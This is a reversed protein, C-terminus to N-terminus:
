IRASSFGYRFSVAAGAVYLFFFAAGMVVTRVISKVIETRPGPATIAGLAIPVDLGFLILWVMVLLALLSFLVGIIAVGTRAGRQIFSFLLAVAGISVLPLSAISISTTAFEWEPSKFAVPYWRLAIDIVGVALLVLGLWGLFRWGTDIAEKTFSPSRKAELELVQRRPDTM